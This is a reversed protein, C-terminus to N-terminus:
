MRMSVALRNFANMLSIAFTLDSIEVETFHKKLPEFVEDETGSTEIHTVAEAWALAVRERESYATSVRWGSLMDLRANTEGAKRLVKSHLDLCFACGNIQSIRLYILEMLSNGLTSKGLVERVSVLRHYADPSLKFYPLRLSNM